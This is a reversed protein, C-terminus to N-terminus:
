FNVFFGVTASAGSLDIENPDLLSSGFDDGMEPKGAMLYRAEASLGFDPSLAVRLGAAVHVGLAAGDSIFSDNEVIPLDDDDFDIFDGFEEYEWFVVDVGAGVYPRITSHRDGPAFRLTVGMPATTFKLTQEIERGSERVYDVYSTEVESTHGDIHFGLELGGGLDHRYELGGTIGAWDSKQTGYLEADDDFLNSDARPFFAGLRLELSGAEAPPASGISALVFVAAAVAFVRSM